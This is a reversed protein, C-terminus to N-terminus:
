GLRKRVYYVDHDARPEWCLLTHGSRRTWSAVDERAAPDDALLALVQGPRLGRLERALRLLPLPCPLGRADHTGTALPSESCPLLM